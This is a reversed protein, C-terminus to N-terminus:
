TLEYLDALRHETLDASPVDFVLRGDRLGLARTCHRRALDPQHLSVVLTHDAAETHLLDLVEGSRAPDLSAVPEDALVLDPAQLLLRAIAVRQQEGGSLRETREYLAWGLGVQELAARAAERERPWVLSAVAQLVNWHGLRGANVNHVVRVQEVLDLQQHILGIRRQLRRLDRPALRAPEEDLVVVRGATARLSGNLLRLLTSKGAGSPGLLAVREGVAVTLDLGTLAEVEGYSHGVGELRIAAAPSM